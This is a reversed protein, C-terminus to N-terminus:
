ALVKDDRGSRASPSCRESWMRDVIIRPVFRSFKGYM